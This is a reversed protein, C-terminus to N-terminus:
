TTTFAVSLCWSKHFIKLSYQKYKEINTHTFNNITKDDEMSTANWSSHKATLGNWVIELIEEEIEHSVFM